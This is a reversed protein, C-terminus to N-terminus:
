ALPDIFKNVIHYKRNFGTNELLIHWKHIEEGLPWFSAQTSIEINQSCSTLLAGSVGWLLEAPLWDCCSNIEEEFVLSSFLWFLECFHLAQTFFHYSHVSSRHAIFPWSRARSSVWIFIHSNFLILCVQSWSPHILQLACFVPKLTKKTLLWYLPVDQTLM